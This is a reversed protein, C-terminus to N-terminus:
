FKSNGLLKVCGKMEEVPVKLRRVKQTVAVKQPQQAPDFLSVDSDFVGLARVWLRELPLQHGGEPRFVEGTTCVCVGLDSLVYVRFYYKNSCLSDNM